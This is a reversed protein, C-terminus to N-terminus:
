SHQQQYVPVLLITTGIASTYEMAAVELDIRNPQRSGRPHYTPRMPLCPACACVCPQRCVQNPGQAAPAGTRACACPVCVCMQNEHKNAQSILRDDGKSLGHRHLSSTRVRWYRTDVKVLEHVFRDQGRSVVRSMPSLLSYVHMCAWATLGVLYPGYMAQTTQMHLPDPPPCRGFPIGSVHMESALGRLDTSGGIIGHVIASFGM